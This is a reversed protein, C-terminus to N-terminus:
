NGEARGPLMVKRAQRDQEMPAVRVAHAAYHWAIGRKQALVCKATVMCNLWLHVCISVSLSQEFGREEM